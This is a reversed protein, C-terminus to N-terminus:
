AEINLKEENLVYFKGIKQQEGIFRKNLIKGCITKCLMVSVRSKVFIKTNNREHHM